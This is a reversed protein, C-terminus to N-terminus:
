ILNDNAYSSDGCYLRSGLILEWDGKISAILSEITNVKGFTNIPYQPYNEYTTFTISAELEKINKEIRKFDATTPLSLLDWTKSNISKGMLEGVYKINNEIRNLDSANLYGKKTRNDIDEQTRDYVPQIWM